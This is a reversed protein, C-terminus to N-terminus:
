GTFPPVKLGAVCSTDPKRPTSVFSAIVKSACDSQRFTDHGAGPIIVFTHDSLTSAAFRAWRTPTVADFSGSLVLAPISSRTVARQAVPAKPVDWARCDASLFPLQPVQALVPDPYSPFARRGQRLVESAREYPAWEGCAVGYTLGYGVLGPPVVGQARQTAITQAHGAALEATWAPVHPFSTAAFSLTVLWNVLFDGDLVVKVPPESPAAKVETTLPHRELQRVLRTFTGGVHSHHHRCGPQAACASFLNDFGDRAAGWFASPVILSPPVVSDLTVSRIGAPHERMLTLALDTGYSVGYVNWQAFGLATRLDAFDAANETTNYAGLDIGQAALRHRCARTAAVHLRGTSAADYVLSVARTNFHDIEPCTLEPKDFLTGRQEMLIVDRDRNIGSKAIRSWASFAIGGPGGTLYVFPDRAPTRSVAPVIAVALRITRGSHKTRNEPVVLYGCRAVKFVTLPLTTTPCAARVFRPKPLTPAGAGSSASIGAFAAILGALLAGTSAVGPPASCVDRGIM